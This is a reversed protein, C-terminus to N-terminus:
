RRRRADILQREKRRRRAKGDELRFYVRMTVTRKNIKRDTENTRDTYTKSPGYHRHHACAQYRLLHTKEENVITVNVRTFMLM